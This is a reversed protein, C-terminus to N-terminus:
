GLLTVPNEQLFVDLNIGLYSLLLSNMKTVQSPRYNLLLSGYAFCAKTISGLMRAGFKRVSQLSTFLLRM